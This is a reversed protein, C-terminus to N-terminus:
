IYRNFFERLTNTTPLKNDSTEDGSSEFSSDSERKGSKQQEKQENEIIEEIDDLKSKIQVSVDVIKKMMGPLENRLGPRVHVAACCELLQKPLKLYDFDNLHLRDIQMAEMFNQLQINKENVKENTQRMLKAKEESYLSSIEHAKM